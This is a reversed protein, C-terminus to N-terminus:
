RSVQREVPIAYCVVDWPLQAYRRLFIRYGEWLANIALPVEWIHSPRHYVCVALAPRTDKILLHAGRLAELEAGEIDMKIFTPAVKGVLSDLPLCEVSLNGESSVSSAETGNAGFGIQGAEAGIAASICQLRHCVHEPLSQVYDKLREFNEPDPEFAIARTFHGQCFDLFRALTDGDYAGCDLFVADRGIQLLDTPFHQESMTRTIPVNFDLCMRFRLECIFERRSEEDAMLAFASEIEKGHALIRSPLDLSYYPLFTKPFKYFLAACSMVRACGLGTLRQRIDPYCHDRNWITVVFAARDGFMGAAEEPSLVLLGDVESGWLYANQDSFALPAIGNKRLGSLVSKGINGAGYLVLKRSLPGAQLDFLAREWAELGHVDVSLYPALPSPPFPGLVETPDSGETM